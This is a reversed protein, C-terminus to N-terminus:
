RFETFRQLVQVFADPGVATPGDYAYSMEWVLWLIFAVLGTMAGVMALHPGYRTYDYFFAFGIAVVGGGLLGIWMVPPVPSEIAATRERRADVLANIAELTDAMLVEERPSTPRMQQTVVRMRAVLERARPSTQGRTMLPWEEEVVTSAYDSALRTLEGRQPEALGRATFYIQSVRNAEAKADDGAKSVAEWVIIVVFALLIAYLVGVMQYIASIVDHHAQKREGPILKRAIALLVAAVAVAGVTVLIGTSM